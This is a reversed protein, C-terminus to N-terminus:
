DVGGHLPSPLPEAGLATVLPKLGRGRSPAVDCPRFVEDTEDRRKLGRGRSPAVYIVQNRPKCIRTEIWAGTFPRSSSGAPIATIVSTEIWAGTFPRGAMKGWMRVLDFQKM